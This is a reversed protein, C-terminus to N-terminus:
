PPVVLLLASTMSPAGKVLAERTRPERDMGSPDPTAGGLPARYVVLSPLHRADHDMPQLQRPCFGVIQAGSDIVTPREDDNDVIALDCSVIAFGEATVDKIWWSDGETQRQQMEPHM